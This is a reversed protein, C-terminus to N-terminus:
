YKMIEHLSQISLLAEITSEAGSNKNYAEPGNIGDSCRGTQPDYMQIGMPNDGTFWDGLKLALDMYKERGSIKYAEAAAWIMPRLNYAIQPFESANYVQLDTGAKRVYFHSLNGQEALHAIFSDLEFLAAQILERDNLIDATGLLAYSQINGYAHWINRWSRFAGNAHSGPSNIQMKVIAESLKRIYELLQENPSSNYFKCLGMLLISGQDAASSDPLINPVELGDHMSIGEAVQVKLLTDILKNGAQLYEPRPGIIEIAEGLVWLARWSWWNAEAVTTPGEKHVSNDDWIFNYFYGSPSQMVLIFDLLGIARHYDASDGYNNFQRLYYVAARAVDDVCAIGEDDDGVFNYEPYESYIHVISVESGEVIRKEILHQLHKDNLEPISGVKKITVPDGATCSMALVYVILLKILIRSM